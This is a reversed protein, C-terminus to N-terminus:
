QAGQELDLIQTAWNHLRSYARKTILDAPRKGELLSQPTTFQHYTWMPENSRFLLILQGVRPEYGTSTFQWRPYLRVDGRRLALIYGERQLSDLRSRSLKSSTVADKPRLMDPSLLAAEFRKAKWAEGRALARTVADEQPSSAEETSEAQAPTPNIPIAGGYVDLDLPAKYRVVHIRRAERVLEQLYGVDPVQGGKVKTIVGDLAILLHDKIADVQQVHVALDRNEYKIHLFHHLFKELRTPNVKNFRMENYLIRLQAEHELGRRGKKPVAGRYGLVRFAKTGLARGANTTEGHAVQPQASLRRYGGKTGRVVELSGPSVPKKRVTHTM